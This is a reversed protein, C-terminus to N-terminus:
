PITRSLWHAIEAPLPLLPLLEIHYKPGGITKMLARARGLDARSAPKLTRLERSARGSPAASLDELVDFQLQWAVLEGRVSLAELLGQKLHEVEHALLSCLWPDDPPKDAYDANLFVGFRLRRWDFWRAGSGQQRSFGLRTRHRRIYAVSDRGLAGSAELCTLAQEFWAKEKERNHVRM